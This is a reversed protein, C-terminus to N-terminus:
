FKAQCDFMLYCHSEEAKHLSAPNSRHLSAEKKPTQVLKRMQKRGAEQLCKMTRNLPLKFEPSRIRRPPLKKPTHLNLKKALSHLIDEPRPFRGMVIKSYLNINNYQM